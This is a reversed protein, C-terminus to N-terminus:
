QQQQQQIIEPVYIYIAKDDGIGTVPANVIVVNGKRYSEMIGALGLLSKSNFSLPDLYDNDIRRYLINVNKLGGATKM